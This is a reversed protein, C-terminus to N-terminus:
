KEESILLAVEQKLSEYLASESNALLSERAFREHGWIDNAYKSNVTSRLKNPPPMSHHSLQVIQSLVQQLEPTVRIGYKRTLANPSLLKPVLAEFNNGGSRQYDRQDGNWAALVDRAVADGALQRLQQYEPRQDFAAASELLASIESLKM